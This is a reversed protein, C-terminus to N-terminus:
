RKLMQKARDSIVNPVNKDSALSRLDHKRLFPLLKMSTGVPTKPNRTLAVKMTYAKQWQRKTAIFRIVEDSINRMGAYAVAESIQVKPSKIVSMCVLRNRDRILIGRDTKTGLLALRVKQSIKMQAIEANRGKKVREQTEQPKDKGTYGELGSDGGADSKKEGAADGFERELDSLDSDAELETRGEEEAQLSKDLFDSFLSDEPAAEAVAASVEVPDEAIELGEPVVPPAQGKQPAELGLAKAHEEFASIGELYVGARVAFDIIRDVTSMRTNPNLYLAEIIKPHRLMRVQNNSILELQREKAKTAIWHVTEDAAGPNMVIADVYDPRGIFKQALSDLVRINLRDGLAPQMIDPPLDQLTNRATAAVAGDPDGSLMYLATVLNGPPMPVLGQAAMLRMQPPSNRDVNRQFQPPLADLPLPADAYVADSM